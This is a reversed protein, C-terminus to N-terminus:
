SRQLDCVPQDSVVMRAEDDRFDAVIMVAIEIARDRQDIGRDGGACIARFKLHALQVLDIAGGAKGALVVVEGDFVREVQQASKVLRGKSAFSAAVPLVSVTEVPM